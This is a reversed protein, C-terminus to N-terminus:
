VEHPTNSLMAQLSAEESRVLEHLDKATLTSGRLSSRKDAMVPTNSLEVTPATVPVNAVAANNRSVIVFAAVAVAGAAALIYGAVSAVGVIDVSSSQARTNEGTADATDIVMDVSEEKSLAETDGGTLHFDNFQVAKASHVASASDASVLANWIGRENTQLSNLTNAEFADLQEADAFNVGTSAASARVTMTVSATYGDSAVSTVRVDSASVGSLVSAVASQIHARESAGIEGSVGLISITVSSLQVIGVKNSCIAASTAYSVIECDGNSVRFTIQSQQGLDNKSKCYRFTHDTVRDLAGGVRLIYEGDPYEEWCTKTTPNAEWPCMTGTSL